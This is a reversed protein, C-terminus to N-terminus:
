RDRRTRQVARRRRQVLAAVDPDVRAHGLDPSYAIRRGKIGEHLRDLYNAPGAELSTFDLPHPGSMVELMLANDAVTRTM